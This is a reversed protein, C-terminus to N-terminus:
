ALTLELQTHSRAMEDVKEDASLAQAAIILELQTDDYHDECKRECFYHTGRRIVEPDHPDVIVRQCAPDACQIANM